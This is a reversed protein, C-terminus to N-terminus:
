NASCTLAHDLSRDVFPVFLYIEWQGSKNWAAAIMRGHSSIDYGSSSPPVYPVRILREIDAIADTTM